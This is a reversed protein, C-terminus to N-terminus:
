VLAGQERLADVEDSSYRAYRMLIEETAGGLSPGATRKIPECGRLTFQPSALEVEGLEGADVKQYFPTDVLDPADYLDSNHAVVHAPVGARQLETEAERATRNEMWQSITRDLLDRNRLRALLSSFEPRDLPEGIVKRLAGWHVRESADVVIWHDEGRCRYAGCPARLPEFREGVAEPDHGNVAFEAAAPIIFQMGAEAQALDIYEGEDTNKRRYLAALICSVAFRPAVSDTWPGYPGTPHRGPMGILSNAGAYASGTTGTGSTGIGITGKRGLLGTSMMILRPNHTKLKEYSLGLTDIVGPTFSEILVDAWEVLRLLADRGAESKFNLVASPKNCNIMHYGMQSGGALARLPDRRKSSEVKIVTAGFDALYRASIPGVMLWGMDVVNLGSLPAMM